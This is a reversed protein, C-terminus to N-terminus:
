DSDQNGCSVSGPGSTSIACRAPGDIDVEGPGQVSVDAEQEVALEVDGPGNVVVAATQSRLDGAQIEGPGNITLHTARVTGSAVIEGPGNITFDAQDVELGNVLISGSFGEIVGAFRDGKVGDISVDGSGTLSVRTLKPMTVSIKTSDFDAWDFGIGQRPRIVLEGDEVVVELRGVSGDAHVSFTEGYTIELDQPGTTSIREFNALQYTMQSPENAASRPGPGGGDSDLILAAGGAAVVGAALAFVIERKRLRPREPSSRM